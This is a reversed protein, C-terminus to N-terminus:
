GYNTEIPIQFGRAWEVEFIRAGTEAKRGCRVAPRASVSLSSRVRENWTLRNDIIIFSKVRQEDPREGRVGRDFDMERANAFEYFM